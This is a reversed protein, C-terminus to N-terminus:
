EKPFCYEELYGGADDIGKYFVRNLLKCGEEKRGLEVLAIGKYFQLELSEGDLRLALNLYTLALEYAGEEVCLSGAYLYAPMYGGNLLISQDFHYLASDPKELAYYALGTYLEVEEDNKWLRVIRLEELAQENRGLEVLVSARWKLLDPNMSDWALVENLDELQREPEGLERYIFARLIRARPQNTNEPIYISLDTLAKEPDGLFFFCVARKYLIQRQEFTKLKTSKIVKNYQRLAGEFDEHNFLTDGLAEAVQIKTPKTQAYLGTYFFILLVVIWRM